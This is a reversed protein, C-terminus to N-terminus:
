VVNALQNGSVPLPRLDGDGRVAPIVARVGEKNRRWAQEVISKALVTEALVKLQGPRGAGVHANTSKRADREIHVTRFVPTQIQRSTLRFLCGHWAWSAAIAM